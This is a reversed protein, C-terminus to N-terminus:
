GREAGQEFFTRAFRANGFGEGRGRACSWSTSPRHGSTSSWSAGAESCSLRCSDFRRLIGATLRCFAQLVRGNQRRVTM